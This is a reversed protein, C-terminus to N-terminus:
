QALFKLCPLLRRLQIAIWPCTATRHRRPHSWFPLALPSLVLPHLGRLELDAHPSPESNPPRAFVSARKAFDCRSVDPHLAPRSSPHQQCLTQSRNRFPHAAAPLAQAPLVALAQPFPGPRLLGPPIQPPPLLPLLLTRLRDPKPHTPELPHLLIAWSSPDPAVALLVCATAPVASALEAPAPAIWAAAPAPPASLPQLALPPAPLM